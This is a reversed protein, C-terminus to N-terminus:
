ILTAYTIAPDSHSLIQVYIIFVSYSPYVIAKYVTCILHDILMYYFYCHHSDFETLMRKNDDEGFNKMAEMMLIMVMGM